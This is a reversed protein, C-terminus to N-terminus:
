QRRITQTHKVMKNLQCKFAQTTNLPATPGEWVDIICNKQFFYTVAFVHQINECFGGRHKVADEIRREHQSKFLVAMIMSQIM